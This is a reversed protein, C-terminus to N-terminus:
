WTEDVNMWCHEDDRARRMGAALRGERVVRRGWETMSERADEVEPAGTERRILRESLRRGWERRWEGM